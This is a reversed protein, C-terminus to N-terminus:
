NRVAVRASAPATITPVKVGDIWAAIDPRYPETISALFLVYVALMLFICGALEVKGQAERM